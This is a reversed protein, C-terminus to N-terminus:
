TVWIIPSPDSVARRRRSCNSSCQTEDTSGGPVPFANPQTQRKCSNLHSFQECNRRLVKATQQTLHFALPHYMARFAPYYNSVDFPQRMPSVEFRLSCYTYVLKIYTLSM